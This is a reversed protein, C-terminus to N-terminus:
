ENRNEKMFHKYIYKHLQENANKKFRNLVERSKPENYKLNYISRAVYSSSKTTREGFIKQCIYSGLQPELLVNTEKKVITRATHLDHNKFAKVAFEIDYLVIKNIIKDM